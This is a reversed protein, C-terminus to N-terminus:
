ESYVLSQIFRCLEEPECGKLIKKVIASGVIIGDAINYFYGAAKADSIGFGVAVPMPSYDKVAQIYTGISERFKDRVGTVGMSSVCYTFGSVGSTIYGARVGSNPAVLPILSLGETNVYDIIEDREELPLDPIVLGDIGYKSCAKIFNESGFHFITNFYVLFVIPTDSLERIRGVMKFMDNICIGNNIAIHAAEQNVPGDALADSFPVGIEIIDAGGKEIAKFYEITGNIDPVGGTLYAVLFKKNEDTIKRLTGILRNM